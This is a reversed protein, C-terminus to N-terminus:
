WSESIAGLLDQIELFTEVLDVHLVGALWELLDLVRELAVVEQGAFHRHLPANDVLHDILPRFVRCRELDDLTGRRNLSPLSQTQLSPRDLSQDRRSAVRTRVGVSLDRFDGSADSCKPKRVGNQNSGFTVDNCAMAPKGGRALKAEGFHGDDHQASQVFQLLALQDKCIVANGQIGAPIELDEM